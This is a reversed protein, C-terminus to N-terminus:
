GVGDGRDVTAGGAQAAGQGAMRGAARFPGCARAAVDQLAQSFFDLHETVREAPASLGLAAVVEGNLGFVPAALAATGPVMEGFSVALGSDAVEGLIARLRDPDTVTQPTRRKLLAHALYDDRWAATGFALLVRGAATCYLPANGGPEIVYRLPQPSDIVDSYVVRRGGGDLVALTATERTRRVLDELFPRLHGTRSWRALIRASLDFIGPGLSYVNNHLILYGQTVLPRLLNLLSSKPAALDHSLDALSLGDDAAALLALAGLLRQVSRPGAAEEGTAPRGDGRDSQSGRLTM